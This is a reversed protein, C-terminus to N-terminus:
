AADPRGRRELAAQLTEWRRWEDETWPRSLPPENVVLRESESPIAAPADRPDLRSKSGSQWRRRDRVRATERLEQRLEETTQEICKSGVGLARSEPTTLGRNCVVCRVWEVSRDENVRVHEGVWPLEPM